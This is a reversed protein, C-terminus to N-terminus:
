VCMYHIGIIGDSYHMFIVYLLGEIKLGGMPGLFHPRINCTTKFYLDNLVSHCKPVLNLPRIILPPRLIFPQLISPNSYQPCRFIKCYTFTYIKCKTSHSRPGRSAVTSTCTRWYMSASFGAVKFIRTQYSYNISISHLITPAYAIEM